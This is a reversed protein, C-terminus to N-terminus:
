KSMPAVWNVEVIQVLKKLQKADITGFVIKLEKDSKTVKLGLKALKDLTSPKLEKIWVQVDVKGSKAVLLRRDLKSDINSQQREAETMSTAIKKEGAEDKGYRGAAQKSKTSLIAGSQAQAPKAALTPAPNAATNSVGGSGGGAFGPTISAGRGGGRRVGLKEDDKDAVSDYNVGDTLDVPVQITEQRGGQNVIKEEVAVFSTYQTMISFDLGIQTVALTLDDPKGGSIGAVWNQRMLDDVKERAWVTAIASGTEDKEPFIVNLTQSWPEGGVKGTITISGPGSKSYRGKVIM